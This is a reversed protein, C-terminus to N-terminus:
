RTLLRLGERYEEFTETSRLGAKAIEDMMESVTIGVIQAAKDVSCTGKRYAELQKNLLNRDLRAHEQPAKDAQEENAAVM